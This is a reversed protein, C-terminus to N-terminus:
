RKAEVSPPPTFVLDLSGAPPVRAWRGALDLFAARVADLDDDTVRRRLTQEMRGLPEALADCFADAPLAEGTTREFELVSM